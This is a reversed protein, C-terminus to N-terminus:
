RPLRSCLQLSNMHCTHPMAQAVADYTKQNCPCAEIINPLQGCVFRCCCTDQLTTQGQHVALTNDVSVDFRLVDQQSAWWTLLSDKALLYQAYWLTCGIDGTIHPMSGFATANFRSCESM